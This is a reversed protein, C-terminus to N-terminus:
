VYEGEGKTKNTRCDYGDGSVTGIITWRGTGPDKHVLPGGSDGACPDQPVGGVVPVETFLFNRTENQSVTLNVHKLVPSQVYGPEFQTMGWGM